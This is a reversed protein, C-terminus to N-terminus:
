KPTWATWRRTRDRASLVQHQPSNQQEDDYYPPPLDEENVHPLNEDTVLGKRGTTVALVATVM